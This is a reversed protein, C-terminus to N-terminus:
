GTNRLFPVAAVGTIPVINTSATLGAATWGPVTLVHHVHPRAALLLAHRPPVTDLTPPRDDLRLPPLPM